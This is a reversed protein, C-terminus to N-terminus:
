QKLLKIRLSELGSRIEIIYFGSEWEQVSLEHGTTSLNRRYIMRGTMDSVLLQAERKIGTIWIKDSAPNPYVQLSLAPTLRSDTTLSPWIVIADPGTWVTFPPDFDPVFVANGNMDTYAIPTQGDSIYVPQDPFGSPDTEVVQGDNNLHCKVQQYRIAIPEDASISDKTADLISLDWEDLLNDVHYLMLTDGPLVAIKEWSHLHSKGNHRLIWARAYASPETKGGWGYTFLGDKEIKYLYLLTDNGIEERFTFNLSHKKLIGALVEAANTGQFTGYDRLRNEVHGNLIVPEAVMWQSPVLNEFMTKASGYISTVEESEDIQIQRIERVYPYKEPYVELKADGASLATLSYGNDRPVIRILEPTHNVISWQIGPMIVEGQDYLVPNFEQSTGFPMMNELGELIVKVPKQIYIETQVSEGPFGDPIVSVRITGGDKATITGQSSIDALNRDSNEFVFTPTLRRGKLFFDAYLTLTDHIAMVKQHPHIVNLTEKGKLGTPRTAWAGGTETSIEGLVGLDSLAGTVIKVFDIRDLDVYKGSSDVAWSIDVPDGGAGERVDPTYPNDALSRDAGRVVPHNDAYGFALAPLVIQNNMVMSPHGLMTGKFRVSDHPYDQFYSPQPYYSQSHFENKLLQGQEGRANKWIASGDELPLWTVEANQWTAPHYYSSGAIQYWTDDPLQNNNEDKMVWIIGAESSGSFANGFITFDIGYPNEPHNLVPDEFGLVIYGGFSGLSVFADPDDLIAAAAGPTGIMPNNIFQGPAPFYELVRTTHNNQAESICVLAWLAVFLILNKM